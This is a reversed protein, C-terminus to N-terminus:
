QHLLRLPQEPRTFVLEETMDRLLDRIRHREM